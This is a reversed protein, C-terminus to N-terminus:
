AYTYMIYICLLVCSIGIYMYAGVISAVAGVTNMTQSSAQERTVAIM